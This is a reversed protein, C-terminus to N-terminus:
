SMDKKFFRTGVPLDDPLCYWFRCTHEAASIPLSDGRLVGLVRFQHMPIQRFDAEPQRTDVLPPTIVVCDWLVQRAQILNPDRDPFDPQFNQSAPRLLCVLHGSGLKSLEATTPKGARLNDM